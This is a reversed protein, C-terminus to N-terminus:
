TSFRSKEIQQIFQMNPVSNNLYPKILYFVILATILATLIIELFKQLLLFTISKNTKKM